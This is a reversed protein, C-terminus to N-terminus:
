PVLVSATPPVHQEEIEERGALASRLSSTAGLLMLPLTMPTYPLAYVYGNAGQRSWLTGLGGAGGMGGGLHNGVGNSVLQAHVRPLAFIGASRRGRCLRRTTERAPVRKFNLDALKTNANALKFGACTCSKGTLM